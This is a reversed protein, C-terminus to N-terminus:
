FTSTGTKVDIEGGSPDIKTLSVLAGRRLLLLEDEQIERNVSIWDTRM